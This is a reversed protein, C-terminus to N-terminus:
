RALDYKDDVIFAQPLNKLVNEGQTSDHNSRTEQNLAALHGTSSILDTQSSDSQHKSSSAHPEEM